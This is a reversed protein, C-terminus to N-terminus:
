LPPRFTTDTTENRKAPVANFLERYVLSPHIVRDNSENQQRQHRDKRRDREVAM